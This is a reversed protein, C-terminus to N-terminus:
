SRPKILSIGDAKFVWKFNRFAMEAKVTNTIERQNASNVLDLVNNVQRLPAIVNSTIKNDIVKLISFDGSFSKNSLLFISALVLLCTLGNQVVKNRYTINM